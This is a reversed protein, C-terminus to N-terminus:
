LDIYGLNALRFTMAQVSVDYRKALEEIVSDNVLDLSEEEDLDAALFRQPMLLEAAFLNAEIETEDAGEGSMQDRRQVRFGEDVHFERAGHLLLHGTEHGVTFRKRQRSHRENVGIVVQNPKAGRLLFGSLTKKAPAEEIAAGLHEAVAGVDIPPENCEMEDLISEVLQRIHNRRIAM